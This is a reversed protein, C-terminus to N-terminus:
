IVKIGKIRADELEQVLGFSEEMGKTYQENDLTKQDIKKSRKKSAFSSSVRISSNKSKTNSTSAESSSTSATTSLDATM